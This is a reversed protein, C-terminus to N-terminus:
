SLIAWICPCAVILCRDGERGSFSADSVLLIVRTSLRGCDMLYVLNRRNVLEQMAFSAVLSEVPTEKRDLCVVMLFLFSFFAIFLSTSFLGM